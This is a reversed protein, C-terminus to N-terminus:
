SRTWCSLVAPSGRHGSFRGPEAFRFVRRLGAASCLMAAQEAEQAGHNVMVFLGDPRL